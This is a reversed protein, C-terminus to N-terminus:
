SKKYFKIPLFNKNQSSGILNDYSLLFGFKLSAKSM